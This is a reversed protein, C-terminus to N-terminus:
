GRNSQSRLYEEYEVTFERARKFDASRLSLVAVVDEKRTERLALIQPQRPVRFRTHDHFVITVITGLSKGDMTYVTSWMWRQQDTQEKNGWERSIDFDGPFRPEPRLGAEKLQQHVPLFLLNLYTGYAMDGAQNYAELLQDRRNQLLSEWNEAIHSEMYQAIADIGNEKGEQLFEKLLKVQKM